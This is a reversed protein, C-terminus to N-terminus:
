PQKLTTVASDVGARLTGLGLFGLLNLLDQNGSLFQGITVDGSIFHVLSILAGLGALIYTKKGKLFELM